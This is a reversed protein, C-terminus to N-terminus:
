PLGQMINNLPGDDLDDQLGTAPIPIGRPLLRGHSLRQSSFHSTPSVFVRFLLKLRLIQRNVELPSLRPERGPDAGALELTRIDERDDGFM